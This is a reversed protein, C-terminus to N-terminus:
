VSLSVVKHCLNLPPTFVFGGGRNHGWESSKAESSGRVKGIFCRVGLSVGKLFHMVNAWLPKLIPLLCVCM